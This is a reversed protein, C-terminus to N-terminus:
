ILVGIIRTTASNTNDRNTVTITTGSVNINIRDLGYVVIYKLVILGSVGLGSLNKTATALIGTQVTFDFTGKPIVTMSDIGVTRVGNADWVELGFSM